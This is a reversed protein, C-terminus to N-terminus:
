QVIGAIRPVPRHEAGRPLHPQVPAGPRAASEDNVPDRQWWSRRSKWRGQPLERAGRRLAGPQGARAARARRRHARLGHRTRAALRRRRHIRTALSDLYQQARKVLLERAHTSGPLPVIADHLEFLVANALGRVDQFRKEARIRERTAVHWQWSTTVIGGLLTMVFCRRPWCEARHRRIFKSTRYRLTDPRASVPHGQLHRRLDNAFQEVSDYRREPEKRLAMLLINDIDGALQRELRDPRTNRAESVSEPTVGNESARIVTSPAAASSQTHPGLARRHIRSELAYPRHGTLLRYLLVGLSYVDSATTVKDGRLQEPSAYEPTM